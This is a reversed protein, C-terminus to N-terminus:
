LPNFDFHWLHIVQQYHMIASIKHQIKTSLNTHMIILQAFQWKLCVFYTFTHFHRLRLIKVCWAIDFFRIYVFTQYNLQLFVDM